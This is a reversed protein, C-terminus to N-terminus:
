KGEWDITGDVNYYFWYRRGRYEVIGSRFSSCAARWALKYRRDPAHDYIYMDALETMDRLPHGADVRKLAFQIAEIPLPTHTNNM